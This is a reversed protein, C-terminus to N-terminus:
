RETLSEDKYRLLPSMLYEILRRKGINLEVTVAMGPSLQVERGEVQMSAKAPRIKAAYILGRQEDAIADDSINIVEGDITGYKTFQFTEVKIEAPQGISIFGIDKNEIWAEVEIPDDEPVITLLEQAPTVVGGVTHVALQDISGSVPARLQQLSFRQTAKVIEQNLTEIQKEIESLEAIQQQEFEARYASRREQIAAIAALRNVRNSMQIDRERAQTVRVEEVELWQVRPAMSSQTLTKLAEARETVLPLTGDIQEIRQEISKLEARQQEEDRDLAATQSRYQQWQAWLRQQQRQIQAPSLKDPLEVLVAQISNKAPNAPKDSHGEDLMSLLTLIRSRDLQLAARQQELSSRDAGTATSDLEILLEGAEVHQGQQVRISRVVGTELPQIVKVRSGPILKGQGVAVVDVQGICAWAVAISFFLMIAWLIWRSIPLPPTEQVELVAPLFEYRSDIKDM